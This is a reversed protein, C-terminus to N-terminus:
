EGATLGAALGKLAVAGQVVVRDQASWRGQLPRVQVRGDPGQGLRQVPVAEFGDARQLYVQEQGGQRVLAAAAVWWAQAGAALRVQAEVRQGPLACAPAERWVARVARLQSAPDVQAALTEIRATADCGPLQVTDGVQLRQAQEASVQMVLWLPGPAAVSLLPAGAAVRQGPQVFVEAVRGATSSAVVARGSLGADPAVGSLQLLSRRERLAAQASDLATRSAQARQAPVLGEELLSADREAVRRAQEVQLQREQYDRQWSVLEPSELMVLARRATVADGAAVQVQQVLAEVPASLVRLSAPPWQVQGQLRLTGGDAVAQPAASQLQLAKAQAASLKLPEAHLFPGAAWLLLFLVLRDRPIM